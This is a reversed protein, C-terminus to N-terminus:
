LMAYVANHFFLFVNLQDNFTSRLLRENSFLNIKEGKSPQCGFCCSLLTKMLSWFIKDKSRHMLLLLLCILKFKKEHSTISVYKNKHYQNIKSCIQNVHLHYNLCLCKFRLTFLFIDYIMETIYYLLFLGILNLPRLFNIKKRNFREKNEIPLFTSDYIM